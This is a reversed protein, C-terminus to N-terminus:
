LTERSWVMNRLPIITEFVRYRYRLWDPDGASLDIAPAPSAIFPAVVPSPLASTADWACLGTPAAATTSSCAATVASPEIKANRAVVAVRVAKIRNRDALTPAAWTAGSANVWQIVQNSNATASIGYQAQLNVVGAVIPVSASTGVKRELNGNNVAFTVENWTGMCALNAGVDGAAPANALTVTKAVGDVASATSMACATANTILTTDGVACGLSSGVTAISGVVATIQTPVGGMTASGYRLTITDSPSANVGTGAVNDAIAVPSLRNPTSTDATGNVILTACELASNTVPMLPYGATQLERGIVYLAIGGNTQADATGTTTRRQAEFVSIVQIIVVTALMGIGLGVMIEVLTFGAQCFSSRRSKPEM